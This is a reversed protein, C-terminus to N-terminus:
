LLEELPYHQLLEYMDFFDKKSGRGSVANLKMASIDEVSALRIEDEIIFDNIIPYNHALIDVKVGEIFTNISSESISYIEYELHNNNLEKELHQLLKQEDFEETSFFDL